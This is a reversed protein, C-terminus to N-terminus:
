TCEEGAALGGNASLCKRRRVIQRVVDLEERGSRFVLQGILNFGGFFLSSFLLLELLAELRKSVGM